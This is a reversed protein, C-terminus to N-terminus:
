GEGKTAADVKANWEKTGCNCLNPTFSPNPAGNSDFPYGLCWQPHSRKAGKLLQKLKEIEDALVWASKETSSLQANLREVEADRRGLTETLEAIREAATHLSALLQEDPKDVEEACAGHYVRTQANLDGDLTKGCRNCPDHIAM